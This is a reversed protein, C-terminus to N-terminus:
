WARTSISVLFFNAFIWDCITLCSVNLYVFKGNNIEEQEDDEDDLEIDGDLSDAAGMSHSRKHNPNPTHYNNVIGITTKRRKPTTSDDHAVSIVSLPQRKFQHVPFARNLGQVLDLDIGSANAAVVGFLSGSNAAQRRVLVPSDPPPINEKDQLQELKANIMAAANTLTHSGDNGDNDDGDNTAFSISFSTESEDGTFPLFSATSSTTALPNNHLKSTTTLTSTGAPAASNSANNLFSRGHSTQHLTAFPNNEKDSARHSRGTSLALAGKPTGSSLQELIPLKLPKKYASTPTTVTKHSTLHHHHHHLSSSRKPTLHSVAHKAGAKAMQKLPLNSSDQLTSSIRSANSDQLSLPQQQNNDLHAM